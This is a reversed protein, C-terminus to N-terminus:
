NPKKRVARVHHKVDRKESTTTGGVMYIYAHENDSGGVATSTWYNGDLNHENDQMQGSENKAPLYWVLNEEKLVAREVQQGQETTTIKNFKNKMACARAAFETPNTPLEKDANVGLEELMQMLSSADNIGDFNYTDLTNQCGNDSDTAVTLPSMESFDIIVNNKLPIISIDQTVFQNNQINKIIAIYLSLAAQGVLGLDSHLIDYTIKMDSDWLFGWPYDGDEIRECGLAGNWSPCLQSITFTQPQANPKDTPRLELSIDRTEEGINETLFAYVTIDDGVTTSSISATGRDEEVWFGRKTLITLDTRLTVKGPDTSTMTWGGPVNSGVKIHIPYIIYHADQLKPESIFELEYEPTISLKYTVTKGQPWKTGAVPATFTRETGTTGDDFVVEIMANEPLTQPLMMFTGEETTIESGSTESGSMSKDLSQSFDGTAADLAWSDNAMDYTGSNLVGKLAVSKITGPQMQSGTTFKVATCIHRFSLPLTSNYNGVIEATTAVLIDQQDTVDAPVTYGLTTSTPSSPTSLNTANTPAWALFQLTHGAGPWYYTNASSWLNSGKDTVDADMYFQEGVLTGGKKWYALVHFSEYFNEKTVSIGRTVPTEGEFASGDIGDSVIARVCLTDASDGARLVFRDSTYGSGNNGANGRTRANEDPSMGFCIYDCSEGTNGKNGNDPFDDNNCSFLLFCSILATMGSTMLYWNKYAKM